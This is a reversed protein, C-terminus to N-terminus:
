GARREPRISGLDVPYNGPAGDFPPWPDALLFMYATLHTPARLYRALFGHLGDPVRGLILAAFWAIVVAIYVAIGWISLWIVQPIM